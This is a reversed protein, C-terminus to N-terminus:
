EEFKLSELHWKKTSSNYYLNASYYTRTQIGFRKETYFFCKVTFVGNIQQTIFAHKRHPFEATSSTKLKQRVFVRSMIYAGIKNNEFRDTKYTSNENKNSVSSLIFM